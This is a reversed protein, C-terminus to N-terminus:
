CAFTLWTLGEKARKIKMAGRVSSFINVAFIERDVTSSQKTFISPCVDYSGLFRRNVSQQLQNLM